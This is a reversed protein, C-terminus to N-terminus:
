RLITVTTNITDIEDNLKIVVYYTDVPLDAGNYTGDWPQQYGISDFVKQGNRNYITIVAGPFYEISEIFWTDNEGDGNPTFASSYTVSTVPERIIDILFVQEIQNEADAANVRITYLTKMSFDFTVAAM